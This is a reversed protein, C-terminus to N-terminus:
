GLALQPAAKQYRFLRNNGSLPKQGGKAARIAIMFSDDKEEAALKVLECDEGGNKCRVGVVATAVDQALRSRDGTGLPGCALGRQSQKALDMRMGPGAGLMRLAVIIQDQHREFAHEGDDYRPVAVMTQKREVTETDM